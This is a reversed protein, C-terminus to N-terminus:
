QQQQQQQEKREALLKEATHLKAGLELCNRRLFANEDSLRKTEQQLAVPTNQAAETRLRANERRLAKIQQQLRLSSEIKQGRAELEAVRLKLGAILSGQDPMLRIGARAAEHMEYTASPANPRYPQWNPWTSTAWQDTWPEKSPLQPAHRHSPTALKM